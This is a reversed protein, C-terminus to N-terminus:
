LLDENLELGREKRTYNSSSRANLRAGGVVDIVVGAKPDFIKPTFWQQGHGITVTLDRNGSTACEINLQQCMRTVHETIEGETPECDGGSSFWAKFFKRAWQKLIHIEAACDYCHCLGRVRNVDVDHEYYSCRTITNFYFCQEEYKTNDYDYTENGVAVLRTETTTQRGWVPLYIKGEASYGSLYKTTGKGWPLRFKLMSAEPEMKLHWSMQMRNDEVITDEVKEEDMVKNDATRIDSIFLVHDDKYKLASDDTFFGTILTINPNDEAAAKLKEHFPNPDIFIFKHDPFLSALYENKSGPAAGAYVVTNSKEGYETLFEIESLLLKRQGWHNTTRLENKREYYRKREASELLVREVTQFKQIKDPNQRLHHNEERIQADEGFSPPSYERSSRRDRINRNYHRRSSYGSGDRIGHDSINRAFKKM